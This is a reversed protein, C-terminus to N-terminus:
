HDPVLYIGHRIFAIHKRNSIEEGGQIRQRNALDHTEDVIVIWERKQTLEFLALAITQADDIPLM